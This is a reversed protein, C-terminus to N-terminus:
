HLVEDRNQCSENAEQLVYNNLMMGLKQLLAKARAMPIDGCAEIENSLEELSNQGSYSRQLLATIETTLTQTQLNEDVIQEAAAIIRKLSRIFETAHSNISM